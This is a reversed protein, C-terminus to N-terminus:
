ASAAELLKRAADIVEDVTIKLLGPDVINVHSFSTKSAPSRLLVSRTGYPGNRAPDTPGFIAVVPINLAAALHLPGTDGGILLKARRTLAILEGISCPFKTAAGDSSAEVAFALDAENSSFNVVSKFGFAALRRAVEGFRQAPWQKAEWGAGPTMLVFPTGIGRLKEEVKADTAVDVPLQAPCPLLPKGAVAEALSLNMEIVHIGRVSVRQNYFLAAPWERPSKMGVVRTGSLHSIVASKVAGQFDVALEYKQNLIEARVASIKEWTGPSVLSKRWTKTELTHVFDALPRAANRPGSRLTNATCLVEAWREEIVWGIKTDPFVTRLAGVAPLTHIIDGMAGLRVIVVSEPIAASV